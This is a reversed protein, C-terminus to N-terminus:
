VRHVQIVAQNAVHRRKKKTPPHPFPNCNAITKPFSVDVVSELSRLVAAVPAGVFPLDQFDSSM